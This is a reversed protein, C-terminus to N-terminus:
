QVMEAPNFGTFGATGSPSSEPTICIVQRIEDYAPDHLFEQQRRLQGAVWSVFVKRSYASIAGGARGAADLGTQRLDLPRPAEDTVGLVNSLSNGVATGSVGTAIRTLLEPRERSSYKPWGIAVGSLVLFAMGSVILFRVLTFM